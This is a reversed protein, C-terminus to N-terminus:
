RAAALRKHEAAQASYSEAQAGHRIVLQSCHNDMSRGDDKPAGGARAMKEHESAKASAAAAKAELERAAALHQEFTLTASQAEARCPHRGATDSHGTAAAEAHDMMGECHNAMAEHAAVTNTSTASKAQHDQVMAAHDHGATPKAAAGAYPAAAVAVFAAPVLAIIKLTNM